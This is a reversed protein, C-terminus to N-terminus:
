KKTLTATFAGPKLHLEIDYTGAADIKLNDGDLVLASLTGGLNMGWDNNARFKLEGVVLDTTLKWTYTGKAGIFSMETDKDWGGATASGVIGWTLPLLEYTLAEADMRLRYFGDKLVSINGAKEDQLLTGDTAGKGYANDWNVNTPLFKFGDGAVTVYEYTEFKTKSEEDYLAMPVALTPEWGAGIAGGVVYMVPNSEEFHIPKTKEVTSGGVTYKVRLLAEGVWSEDLPIDFSKSVIHIGAEIAVTESLLVAGGKDISFEFSSVNNAIFGVKLTKGVQITAATTENISVIADDIGHEVKKCGTFFGGILVAM